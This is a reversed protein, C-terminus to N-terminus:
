YQGDKTRAIIEERNPHFCFTKFKYPEAYKCEFSNDVLCYAFENSLESHKARCISMDPLIRTPNNKGNADCQQAM